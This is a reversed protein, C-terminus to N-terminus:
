EALKMQDRMSLKRTAHPLYGVLVKREPCAEPSTAHHTRPDLELGREPISCIRGKYGDVILLPMEFTLDAEGKPSRDSGESKGEGPSGQVWVGDRPDDVNGQVLSVLNRSGSRNYKDM